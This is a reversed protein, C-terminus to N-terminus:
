RFSAGLLIIGIATMWSGAIRIAIRFWPQYFRGWVLLAAVALLMGTVAGFGAFIPFAGGIGIHTGYALGALLGALAIGARAMRQSVVGPDVLLLGTAVLPLARLVPWAPFLIAGLLIGGGFAIALTAVPAAQRDSELRGLLLGLAVMTIAHDPAPILDTAHEIGHSHGAHAAARGAM